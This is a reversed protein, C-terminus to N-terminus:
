EGVDRGGGFQVHHVIGLNPQSYVFLLAILTHIAECFCSVFYRWSVAYSEILEDKGNEAHAGDEKKTDGDRESNSSSSWPVGMGFIICALNRADNRLAEGVCEEIWNLITLAEEANQAM